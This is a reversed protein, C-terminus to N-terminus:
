SIEDLNLIWRTSLAGEIMVEAQLDPSVLFLGADDGITASSSTANRDSFRTSRWRVVCPDIKLWVLQDVRGECQAKYAMPHRDSRCLRVYDGLGARSDLERSLHTSAAFHQIGRRELKEWSLLGRQLISKLNRRDTFHLLPRVM